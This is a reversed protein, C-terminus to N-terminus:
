LRKRGCRWADILNLKKGGIFLFNPLQAMKILWTIRKWYFHLSTNILILSLSSYAIFAFEEFIFALMEWRALTWRRAVRSTLHRRCTGYSSFSWWSFKKEKSCLRRRASRMRAKLIKSPLIPRLGSPSLPCVYLICCPGHWRLRLTRQSISSCVAPKRQWTM